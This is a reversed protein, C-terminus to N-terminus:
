SSVSNRSKPPFLSAKASPANALAAGLGALREEEADEEEEEERCLPLALPTCVARAELPWPLLLALLLAGVKCGCGWEEVCCTGEQLDLQAEFATPVVDRHAARSASRGELRRPLSPKIKASAKGKEWYGVM